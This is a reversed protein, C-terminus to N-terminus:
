TDIPLISSHVLQGVLEVEEKAVAPQIATYDIRQSVTKLASQCRHGPPPRDPSEKGGKSKGPSGTNKAM